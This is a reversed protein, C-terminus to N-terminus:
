SSAASPLGWSSHVVSVMAPARLELLPRSGSPKGGHGRIQWGGKEKCCSGVAEDEVSPSAHILMFFMSHSAVELANSSTSSSASSLLLGSNHLLYTFSM